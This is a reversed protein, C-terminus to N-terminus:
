PPEPEKELACSAVHLKVTVVTANPDTSTVALAATSVVAVTDIVHEPRVKVATFTHTFRPAPLSLAVFAALRKISDPAFWSRYLKYESARVAM